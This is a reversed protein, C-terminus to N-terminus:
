AEQIASLKWPSTRDRVFTWLETTETPREADGSVVAGSTRDRMVDRSEYRLAATVYERDGERWAEAVDAELLRVDSVENRRGQTANQSLEESLYSMVEPTTVERLRGYDERGFADQVEGLLREFDKRDEATVALDISPGASAPTAPTYMTGGFPRAGSRAEPAEFRSTAGPWGAAGAAAPQQRRRFLKMLLWVGLGILAVQFLIAAFGAMGAGFGNGMMAGILGGLLLGGLLGGGLGGLFGGRRPAQAPAGAAAPRAGPQQATPQRPTMSREIPATQTPATQTRPPPTYTRAGRSGFSGGRRADAPAAVLLSMALAVGFAAAFRSRVTSM